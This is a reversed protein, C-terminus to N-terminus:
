TKKERSYGVTWCTLCLAASVRLREQGSNPLYERPHGVSSGVKGQVRLWRGWLWGSVWGCNSELSLVVWAWYLVCRVERKREKRVGKLKQKSWWHFNFARLIRFGDSWINPRMIQRRLHAAVAASNQSLSAALLARQPSAQLPDFERFCLAM